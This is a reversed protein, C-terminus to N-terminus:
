ESRSSKGYTLCQQAAVSVLFLTAQDRNLALDKAPVQCVRCPCVTCHASHYLLHMLGFYLVLSGRSNLFLTLEPHGTGQPLEVFVQQIFSHHLLM